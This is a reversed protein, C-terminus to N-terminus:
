PLPDKGAPPPRTAGSPEPGDTVARRREAGEARDMERNMRWATRILTTLAVVIGLCGGVLLGWPRTDAFHDVVWGLAAGAAVESATQMAVGAMRWGLRTERAQRSPDIADM